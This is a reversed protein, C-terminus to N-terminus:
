NHKSFLSSSKVPVKDDLDPDRKTFSVIYFKWNNLSM